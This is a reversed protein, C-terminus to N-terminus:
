NLLVSIFFLASVQPDSKPNSPFNQLECAIHGSASQVKTQKRMQIPVNWSHEICAYSTAETTDWETRSWLCYGVLSRQGQSEGPLFVPTPQWKRRWHMCAHQTAETMDFETCGQPCCGVLIRQGCSERPLFVPTPQWKRRCPIHQPNLLYFLAYLARLVTAAPVSRSSWLSHHQKQSSSSSLRKLRTRSQAVGSIAAWWAEGDRPNELFAAGM